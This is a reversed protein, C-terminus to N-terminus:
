EPVLGVAFRYAGSQVWLESALRSGDAREETVTAKDVDVRILWRKPAVPKNKAVLEPLRAKQPNDKTALAALAAPDGESRARLELAEVVGALAPFAVGEPVWEGDVQKMPVRELGVESVAVAGAPSTISGDADLTFVLRPPQHNAEALVRTVEVRTLELTSQADVALKQPHGLEHAAQTLEAGPGALHQCTCGAFLLVLAARRSPRRRPRSLAFPSM